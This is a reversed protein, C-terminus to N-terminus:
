SPQRRRSRAGVAGLGVLYLLAATPEPVAFEAGTLEITYSLTDPIGAQSWGALAGVGGNPGNVAGFPSDPFIEGNAADVPDLDYDSIALLYQGAVLASIIPDGPPLYSGNGCPSVLPCDDNMAIGVGSLDFLFLQTDTFGGGARASFATPDAITIRYVDADGAFGISGTISDLTGVGAAAQGPALDTADGIEAFSAATASGTALAVLVAVAAAIHRQTM